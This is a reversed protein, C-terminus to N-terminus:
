KVWKLSKPCIWVYKNIKQFFQPCAFNSNLIKVKLMIMVIWSWHIKLKKSFKLTTVPRPRPLVCRHSRSRWIAHHQLIFRGIDVLCDSATKRLSNLLQRKSSRFPAWLGRPWESKAETQDYLKKKPPDFNILNQNFILM